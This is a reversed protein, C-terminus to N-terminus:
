RREERHHVFGRVGKLTRKRNHTVALIAEIYADHQGATIAALLAGVDPPVDDDYPPPEEPATMKELEVEDQMQLGFFSHRRPHGDLFTCRVRIEEDADCLEAPRDYTASCRPTMM